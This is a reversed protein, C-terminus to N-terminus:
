LDTIDRAFDSLMEMFMESHSDDINHRGHPSSPGGKQLVRKIVVSVRDLTPQPWDEHFLTVFQDNLLDKTIIDAGLLVTIFEAYVEYHPKPEATAELMRIYRKSVLHSFVYNADRQMQTQRYLEIEAPYMLSREHSSLSEGASSEESEPPPPLCFRALKKHKWITVVRQFLELVSLDCRSKIILLILQLLMFALLRDMMPTTCLGPQELFDYTEATFEYLEDSTLKEPSTSARHVFLQLKAYLRSPMIACNEAVSFETQNTNITLTKSAQQQQQHQNKHILNQSEGEVDKCFMGSITMYSQRWENSKQLCKELTINRCLKRVQDLTEAPLLADFSETIRKNLMKPVHSEWTNNIRDLAEDCITQITRKTGELDVARVVAISDNVTKKEPLIFMMQFDKIVASTARDVILEVTRRLSQSQSQLFGEVLRQQVNGHALKSRNQGASTSSINLSSMDLTTALENVASPQNQTVVGSYRTTIHRYRGTRSVSKEMKSPMVSVRFDALFPCAASLINELLANFVIPQKNNSNAQETLLSQKTFRAIQDNNLVSSFMESSNYYEEPVNSQEFLWDLCCRVIFRSTPVVFLERDMAFRCMSTAKYIDHLMRFLEEYYRLRLTVVDLMSLYQVLWPVTIVLKREAVSKLLIPQVDFPPLLMNRLEIQRNEVITNRGGEYQFPRAIIFGIFKALLRMTAITEPRAVYESRTTSEVSCINFIEYTSGNLQLLEHILVAKLQEIFMPHNESAVIFDRFFMQSGPFLYQTSFISPGVLRQRLKSLKTLDINPLAMQLESASNDFNFSIILQASFLKALHSMNIPHNLIDLIARVKSGLKAEFEWSPNLHETEWVRLAAYFLDRQKNFASFEKSSPFHDKTDNEQQYFVNTISNNLLLDDGTSAQDIFPNELKMKQALMDRLFGNLTPHLAGLQENEVVVRLSTSDLLALLTRQHYLVETAFYVCNHPSRLVCSLEVPANDTIASTTEPQKQPVPAIYRETSVLNILYALENLMNPVLNLDMLLAYITVLRDITPKQTVKDFEIILIAKIGKTIDKEDDTQVQESINSAGLETAPIVNDVQNFSTHLSQKARLNRQMQTKEALLFDSRIEDKLNRLMGRPDRSADDHCEISILNNESRFSSSNFDHRESVTRSVTTPAIRRRQNGFKKGSGAGPLSGDQSESYSTKANLSIRKKVSQGSDDNGTQDKHPTVNLQPFDDDQFMPSNLASSSNLGSPENNSGSNNNTFPSRRNRHPKTAHTVIYDGLCPLSTKKRRGFTGGGDSLGSTEQRQSGNGPTSPSPCSVELSGNRSSGHQATATKGRSGAIPTSTFSLLMSGTGSRSAKNTRPPTAFVAENTNKCRSLTQNENNGPTSQRDAAGLQPPFRKPTSYGTAEGLESDQTALHELSWVNGSSKADPECVGPLGGHNDFLQGAILNVSTGTTDLESARNTSHGEAAPLTAAGPVGSMPYCSSDSISLKRQQASPNSQLVDGVYVKRPTDCRPPAIKSSDETQARIFGIFFSAFAELGRQHHAEHKGSSNIPKYRM